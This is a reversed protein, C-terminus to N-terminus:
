RKVAKGCETCVASDGVPYACAPCLGHKIRRRRRLAGLGAVPLWLVAAYFITNIAFGPWIPILPLAALARRERISGTGQNFSSPRYGGHVVLWHVKDWDGLYGVAYRLSLCPWGFEYVYIMNTRDIGNWVPLAAQIPPRTEEPESMFRTRLPRVLTERFDPTQRVTFVWEWGDYHFFGTDIEKGPVHDWSWPSRMVLLWTLVVNLIAGLLLFLSLKLTRRKM